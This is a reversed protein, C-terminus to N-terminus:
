ESLFYARLLGHQDDRWQAVYRLVIVSQGSNIVHYAAASFWDCCTKVSEIAVTSSTNSIVDFRIATDRQHDAVAHLSIEAFSSIEDYRSTM